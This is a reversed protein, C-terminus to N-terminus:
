LKSRVANRLQAPTRQPYDTIAAVQAKFDALSTAADVADLIENIKDAHNNLEDLITLGLARVLTIDSSLLEDAVSDRRLDTANAEAAADDVALVDADTPQPRADRWEVISNGSTDCDPLPVLFNLKEIFTAM